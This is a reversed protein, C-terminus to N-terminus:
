VRAFIANGVIRDGCRAVLEYGNGRYFGEVDSYSTVETVVVRPRYSSNKFFQRMVAFDMGEVDISLFDFDLVVGRERLVEELPLCRVWVPGCGITEVNWEALLSDHGAVTHLYLLKEGADPSVALQLIECDLGDFDSVCRKYRDPSPEILIGRWGWSLFQFTNSLERGFAGVDVLFHNRPARNEFLRKLVLFEGHESFDRLSM